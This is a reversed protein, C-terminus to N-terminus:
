YADLAERLVSAVGEPYDELAHCDVIIGIAIESYRLGVFRKAEMARMWPLYKNRHLRALRPPLSDMHHRTGSGTKDPGGLSAPRFWLASIADHVARIEEGATLQQQDIVGAAFLEILRDTPLKARTEPTPGPDETRLVVRRPRHAVMALGTM